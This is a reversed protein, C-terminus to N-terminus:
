NKVVKTTFQQGAVNITAIYIGAPLPTISLEIALLGADNSSTKEVLLTSGTLNSISIVAASNAATELTILFQASTPNPSVNISADAQTFMALEDQSAYREGDCPGYTADGSAVLSAAQANKVCYTTGSYCILVKSSGCSIDTEYIGISGSIENSVVLLNKGNPSQNAPIFLLGEPGLDGGTGAGPTEGFNRDNIYDVFYPAVPNTINFVMFGGIRELGLFLYTSDLIKAITLGEPEPGKDDSRGKKTNSSNSANFNAPLLTNILTELESGSDYILAGSANRISFSRAGFAYLEDYDGDNDIDGMSTTVNLRGLLNENKLDLSDPFIISDLVLDKVRKAEAYGTYDRVDGENAMVVYTAAGINFTAIADPQYMGYVPWNQIAVVGGNKDSADLENGALNHNKFGLGFLSVANTTLNIKAMANNEQITVYAFKSNSSVAIYEPEFDNSATAGPGFVRAGAPLPGANYATFDITTVNAATLGAIGGSIDIISITGLPDTLYDTSPEGENAVLVKNGNPTFTIMDPLAGVEVANLFNGMADFFVAQGNNQKVVNEVAAVIVGNKAAVSNAAVGYPSLDISFALVPATVDTIDIADIDGTSANVSFLYNTAPDFAAIETAGQDFLNTTFSGVKQLDVIQASVFTSALLCMTIIFYNKTLQTMANKQLPAIANNPHHTSYNLM